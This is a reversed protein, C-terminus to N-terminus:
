DCLTLRPFIQYAVLESSLTNCLFVNKFPIDNELAQVVESAKRAIAEFDLGDIDMFPTNYYPALEGYHILLSVQRNESLGYHSVKQEIIACLAERATEGSYSGGKSKFKVWPIGLSLPNNGSVEPYFLVETLYKGLTPFHTFEQRKYGQPSQWHANSPWQQDTEQILELIETRLKESDKSDFRLGDNKPSLLVLRIHNRENKPQDGIAKMFDSIFKETKKNQSIQEQNVWEGLEFGLEEGGQTKCIIDPFADKKEQVKWYGLSDKLSPHAKLFAKFAKKEKKQNM